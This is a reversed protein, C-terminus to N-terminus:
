HARYAELREVLEAPRSLALLHGGPMEDVALGLRQAVVTRQFELPFFRDDRGQLFRIPVDPMSALPWPPGFPADSQSPEDRALMESILEAPLDHLFVRHLDFGDGWTWAHEQRQIAEHHGTNAWWQDPSEGPAPCMANLMVLLSVPVRAAVLPGTFGGLSQAVVILEGVQGAGALAALAADTYEALGASPDGAPLDVPVARHGAARLREVVLHWYWGDGGAGPLLLYTAATM